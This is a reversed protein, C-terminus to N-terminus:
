FDGETIRKQGIAVQRNIEDVLLQSAGAVCPKGMGRAVVAAHSTMGGRATIIGKASNIGEIDEPSTEQRVLLVDKGKSGRKSCRRCSLLCAWM